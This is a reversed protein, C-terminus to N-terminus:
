LTNTKFLEDKLPSIKKTILLFLGLYSSGELLCFVLSHKISPSIVLSLVLHITTFLLLVLSIFIINKKFVNEKFPNLRAKFFLFILLILYSILTTYAAARYGFYYILILNLLINSGSALLASQILIKFQNKFKIKVSAYHSIGSIFAGIFILPLLNWAERFAPGLLLDAIQKSYFSLIFTVPLAVYVTLYLANSIISDSQNPKKELSSLLIPNFAATIATFIAAISLQAINYTQNYIGVKDYGDYLLIIYRDGSVLLFLGTNYILTSIGYRFFRKLHEPFFSSKVLQQHLEDVIILYILFLINILLPAIFFAEIGFNFVFTLLLLLGFSIVSRLATLVNYLRAQEKMRMPILLTNIFEQTIAFLFGLLILKKQIDDHSLLYWGITILLLILSSIGYLSYIIKQYLNRQGSQQYKLYYRWGSSSIWQFFLSSLYTYTIYVMTYHGYELPTYIRTYIPSRLLLTLMPLATGFLYWGVQIGIHNSKKTL